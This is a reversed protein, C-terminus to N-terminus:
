SHNMHARSHTHAHTPAHALQQGLEETYCIRCLDDAGDCKIEESACHLCPPCEEEGAVGLCKHGCEKVVACFEEEM